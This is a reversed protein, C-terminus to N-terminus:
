ERVILDLGLNQAWAVGPADLRKITVLISSRTTRNVQVAFQDPWNNDANDRQRSQVIIVFPEATAFNPIFPSINLKLDGSRPGVTVRWYTVNGIAEATVQEPIAEASEM